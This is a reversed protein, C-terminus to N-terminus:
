KREKKTANKKEKVLEKVPEEAEVVRYFDKYEKKPCYNWGSNILKNISLVDEITKDPMKKFEDKKRLIKM